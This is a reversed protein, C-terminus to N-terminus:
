NNGPNLDYGVSLGLGRFFIIDSIERMLQAASSVRNRPILLIDEPRLYFNAAQAGYTSVDKIDFRHADLTDGNRRFVVVSETQGERTYGGARAVAQFVNIPRKVEYAGPNTVEGLVYVNTGTQERMYLSSKLGPIYDQYATSIEEYVDQITRRAVYYDGLMPFSVYGDQRVTILKSLGRSATQLDRRVQEVRANFNKITVYIEPYRLYESYAQVLETELESATKGVVDHSGLYPLSITGDPLVNQTQDLNPLNVFRVEVTHYLTIPYRDLLKRELHFAVELVDGPAIYYDKFVPFDNSIALTTLPVGSHGKTHDIVETKDIAEVLAEDSESQFASCGTLLASFAACAVLIRSIEKIKRYM